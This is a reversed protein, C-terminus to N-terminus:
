VVLREGVLGVGRRMKWGHIVFLNQYGVGIVGVTKGRVRIEGLWEM